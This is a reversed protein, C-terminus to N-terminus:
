KSFERFMKRDSGCSIMITPNPQLMLLKIAVTYGNHFRPIEGEGSLLVSKDWECGTCDDVCVYGEPMYLVRWQGHCVLRWM